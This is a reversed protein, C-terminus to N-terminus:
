AGNDLTADLALVANLLVQTGNGCAERSAFEAVNHSIGDRCPVFIMTTPAVGALYAADHMAGSTLPRHALGAQAAGAEVSAILRPDFPVAPSQLITTLAHDLGGAAAVDPM